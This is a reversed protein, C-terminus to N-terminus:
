IICLWLAETGDPSIIKHLIQENPDPLGVEGPRIILLVHDPRYQGGSLSKNMFHWFSPFIIDCMFYMKGYRTCYDWEGITTFERPESFWRNPDYGLVVTSIVYPMNLGATTCIVADYDNFRPKLWECAEVFDTHFYHYFDSM